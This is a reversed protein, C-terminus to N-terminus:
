CESELQLKLKEVARARHSVKAREEISALGFVKGLEPSYFLCNYGFERSGIEKTTIEGEVKGEFFQEEGTKTIRAICCAFHAKRNTKGELEKLLKKRNAEFDHDGSYRASYVGPAGGLADVCLGSDDAIVDACIGKKNLFDHVVRAKILANDFFTEGTEEIDGEFGIDDLGLIEYDGLMDKIEEIKHKNSSALVLVRKRM